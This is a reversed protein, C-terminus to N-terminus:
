TRKQRDIEEYVRALLRELLGVVRPAAARVPAPDDGPTELSSNLIHALMDADDQAHSDGSTRLTETATETAIYGYFVRFYAHLQLELPTDTRVAGHERLVEFYGTMVQVRVQAYDHLERTGSQTLSGLTESDGLLMARAIPNELLMLYNTRAFASPLAREPDHRIADIQRRLIAAQARMLVTLFLLEKTHFHLYVTGKGVGARKAVDGITVRRYGWAVLLECATDLIREARADREADAGPPQPGSAAQDLQAM